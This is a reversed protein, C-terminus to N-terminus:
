RTGPAARSAARAPDSAPGLNDRARATARPVRDAPQTWRELVVALAVTPVCSLAFISATSPTSSCHTMVASVILAVIVVWSLAAAIIWGRQQELRGALRGVVTGAILGYPLGVYFGAVVFVSRPLPDCECDFGCLGQGSSTALAWASTIVAVNVLALWRGKEAPSM